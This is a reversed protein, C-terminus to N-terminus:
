RNLEPRPFTIIAAGREAAGAPSSLDGGHGEIVRRALPLALGMGGRKEDFRTHASEYASQVAHEEAVVIVAAGGAANAAFRREVVVTCAGAQERLIAKFIAAFSQRLRPGDGTMTAGAGMGRVELRVDRDPAEHVSAAVEEVMAFLDLSERNLKVLGADLKSVDSMEAILTVLRSCSKEAETVMKRQRDSLPSSQDNLLMRLYGSVVGAPTRFEHVALSLFEPWSDHPSTM